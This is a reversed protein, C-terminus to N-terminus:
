FRELIHLSFEVDDLTFLRHSSLLKNLYYTKFPFTAFMKSKFIQKVSELQSFTFKIYKRWFILKMFKKNHLPTIRKTLVIIM